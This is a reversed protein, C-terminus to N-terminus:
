EAPKEVALKNILDKLVTIMYSVGKLEEDLAEELLHIAGSIGVASAFQLLTYYQSIKHNKLKQVSLVLAIDRAISQPATQDVIENAEKLLGKVVKSKQYEIEEELLEFIKELVHLHHLCESRREIISIKVQKLVAEEQLTECVELLDKETAYIQKLTAVFLLHLQNRKELLPTVTKSSM